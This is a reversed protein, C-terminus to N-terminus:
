DYENRTEDVEDGYYDGDMYDENMFGMDRNENDIDEDLQQEEIFADVDDVNDDYNNGHVEHHKLQKEYQKYKDTEEVTNDYDEAVYETLGKQLGKNWDGLKYKKFLNDVTREEESKSKLKDTLINKEKQKMKFVMDSIKDYSMDNDTTDDIMINIYIILLNAVKSQVIKPNERINIKDNDIELDYENPEEDEEGTEEQWEKDLEKGKKRKQRINKSLDIYKMFIKFFFYQVLLEVIRDTIQENFYYIENLVLLLNDCSQKIEILVTSLSEDDYFQKIQSYYEYIMKQIDRNHTTSLKWYIPIKVEEYNVKNLIINPFGRSIERAYSKFFVLQANKLDTNMEKTTKMVSDMFDGIMKVKKKSLNMKRSNDLIYSLITKKMHSIHGSLYNKLIESTDEINKSEILEILYTIGDDIEIENISVLLAHLKAFPEILSFSLDIDVMHQQNVLQILRLFQDLSYEKGALKMKNIIETNNDKDKESIDLKSNCVSLYAKNIPVATKFKCFYIFALYITDESFIKSITPRAIKTNIRSSLMIATSCDNVDKLIKTLNIVNNNYTEINNDKQKFYEIMPITKNDMCCANELYNQLLLSEKKVINHIKEQIALSFQIIKSELVLIKERQQYSGNKIDNLLSREFEPSIYQLRKIHIEILPPLFEKWKTLSYIESITTEPKNLLYETKEIIKQKIEPLKLLINDVISKIKDNVYEVTKKQLVSWPDVNTRLKHGVCSIYALASYDSVGEFPYGNFSKVCGPFTKRTQVSPISIQVAILFTGFTAFLIRDNYYQSYSPLIVGKNAKVKIMKAYESEKELHEELVINVITIIFDRESEINLGMERSLTTIINSVLQSQENLKMKIKGSEQDLMVDNMVGDRTKTRQQGQEYSEDINFNIKEIVYGSYKDVWADGDDSLKGITLKLEDVHEQYKPTNYYCALTYLFHPILKIHMSNCYLWHVDEPNEETFIKVFKIIYMQQKETDNMGLIHRLLSANPSVVIETDDTNNLGINYKANNYQYFRKNEIEIIKPLIRTYYAMKTALLKEFMEKSIAYKEDFEAMAKEILQQKITLAVGSTNICTNEKSICNSKLNCMMNDSTTILTPDIDKSLVWQNKKRIYYKYDNSISLMAYYGDLVTRMGNILTETLYNSDVDNLKMQKKIKEQLFIFFLQPDMKAREKEYMNLIAYNTDDLQRDFFINKGNDAELEQITYYKKSIIYNKCTPESGKKEFQKNINEILHTLDSPFRLDMNEKSYLTNYLNGFDLNVLQSLLEENTFFSKDKQLHYNNVIDEKLKSNKFLQMLMAPARQPKNINEKFFYEKAKFSKNYETIQEDIYSTIERYQAYTLDDTYILFPELYSVVDVISLKTNIYKKMINFIKKINPIIDDIYKKYNEDKTLESNISMKYNTISKAFEYDEQSESETTTTNEQTTMKLKKTFFEWYKFFTLNLNSKILVNSGPLNIRSFRIVPEPFTMISKLELEDAEILPSKGTISEKNLKTIENNYQQRYYMTETIINSEGQESTSGKGISVYSIFNDNNNVIALLNTHVQKKAIIDAQNKHHTYEFPRLVPTLEKFMTSYKNEEESSIASKYKEAIEMMNEFPEESIIEVDINESDATTVENLYIKKISKVVPLIWYLNTDFKEFYVSLPKWNSKKVTEYLINGYEDFTSFHQRLQKFREVTTHINNLIAYNKRKTTPVTAFLDDMLDNLQADISYRQKSIDVDIFQTIVGFTEKGFTVQNAKLIIRHLKTKINEQPQAEIEIEKEAKEEENESLYQEDSQIVIEDQELIEQDGLEEKTVIKERIEIIINDPMGKYEFNLYIIKNSPTLKIEIMDQELNTIEGTEIKPLDGEFLINIWTGPLLNHQRAYSPTKNRFLLSILDITNNEITKDKNIKLLTTTMSSLHILKMKTDDIYNIYFTSNNLKKNVPDHIRIIDGLQLQMLVKGKEGQEIKEGQEGKKYQEQKTEAAKLLLENQKLDEKIKKYIEKEKTKDTKKAQKLLVKRQLQLDEIQKAYDIM